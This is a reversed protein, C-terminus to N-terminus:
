RWHASDGRRCRRCPVGAYSSEVVGAVLDNAAGTMAVFLGGMLHQFSAHSIGLM